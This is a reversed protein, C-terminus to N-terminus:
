QAVEGCRSTRSRSPDWYRSISAPPAPVIVVPHGCRESSWGTARDRVILSYTGSVTASVCPQTSFLAGNPMFWQYDYNGGPGCLEASGCGSAPGSITCDPPQGRAPGAVLMSTVAFVPLAIRFWTRLM